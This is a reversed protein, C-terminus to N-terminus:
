VRGNEKNWHKLLLEAHEEANVKIYAYFAKETKHGTIAMITISPVDLKYLNTAFSRRATHSTVMEWKKKVQSERVGGKTFGISVTSTFGAIKCVQKIYENFKQNSIMDPLKGDYKALISKVVDHLPIVVRRETKKQEIRIFQGDINESKVKDLDSFRCGTWCGVLFIDRVKDLKRNSSLDLRSIADLEKDDLYVNYSEETQKKFFKFTTNSHVNRELAANCFVKLNKVRAAITNKSYGQQILYRCFDDYFDLDLDNWDLNTSMARLSRLTCNYASITSSKKQSRSIWNEIWELMPLQQMSIYKQPHLYKDVVSALWGKEINDAREAEELIHSEMKLLKSKLADKGKFITKKLDQKSLDWHKLQVFQGTAVSQDIKKDRFRIRISVKKDQDKTQTNVNFSVTAM